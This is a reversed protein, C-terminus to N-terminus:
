KLLQLRKTEVFGQGSSPDVAQLRYIYTGSPLASADFRVEYEGADKTDQVLTRVERGVVDYVKLVVNSQRPLSYHITTTPNFPNPYNQALGYEAPAISVTANESRNEAVEM